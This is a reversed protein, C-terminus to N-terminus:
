LSDMTKMKSTDIGKIKRNQVFNVASEAHTLLAHLNPQEPIPMTTSKKAFEVFQPWEAICGQVVEVAKSNGVSKILNKATSQLRRNWAHHYYNPDVKFRAERFAKELATSTVNGAPADASGSYSSELYSSEYCSKKKTARHTLGCHGSPEPSGIAQSDPSGTAQNQVKQPAPKNVKNLAILGQETVRFGTNRLSGNKVSVTHVVEVFGLEKLNALSLDYKYKTLGTANMLETRTTVYWLHGDIEVKANTMLHNMRQLLVGMALDGGCAAVYDGLIYKM